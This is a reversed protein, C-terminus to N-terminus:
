ANRFNLMGQYSLAQIKHADLAAHLDGAERIHGRAGAHARAACKCNPEQMREIHPGASTGACVLQRRCCALNLKLSNGRGNTFLVLKGRRVASQVENSKLRVSAHVHM